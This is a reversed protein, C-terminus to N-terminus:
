VKKRRGAEKVDPKKRHLILKGNLHDIEHAVIRADLGTFKETILQGVVDFYELIIETPRRIKGRYGPVSLCGEEKNTTILSAMKIRPNVVIKKDKSFIFVRKPVGIQIAALGVASDALEDIKEKLNDFLVPDDTGFIFDTSKEALLESQDIITIIKAM